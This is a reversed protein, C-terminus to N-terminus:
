YSPDLQQVPSNAPLTAWSLEYHTKNDVNWRPRWLSTPNENILDNRLPNESHGDCCLVDTRYNHRNSPLQGCFGGGANDETDTPDLNAEWSGGDQTTPLARSDALFVMQAPAVIDTDKRSGYFFPGDIDGGLGLAATPDALNGANGLGWDNYAMSFRSNPTVLTPDKIGDIWTGGLTNNLNTDWDADAAAAPCCFVQRDNGADNLLRVM